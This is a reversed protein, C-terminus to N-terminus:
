KRQAGEPYALSMLFAVEFHWPLLSPKRPEDPMTSSGSPGGPNLASLITVMKRM